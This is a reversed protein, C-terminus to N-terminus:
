RRKSCCSIKSASLPDECHQYKWHRRRYPDEDSMETSLTAKGRNGMTTTVNSLHVATMVAEASYSKTVRAYQMMTNAKGLIM